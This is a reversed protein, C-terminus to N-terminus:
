DGNMFKTLEEMFSKRKSQSVPLSTGNVNVTYGKVSQVFRLNVLYGNNCRAFGYKALMNEIASMKGTATLEENGVHYYLTHNIIEIYSIEKINVAVTEDQKRVYIKPTDRNLGISKKARDLVQCLHNFVVPKVIFDFADVSYGKVAYQAMNTVFIIIVEGDRKRLREAAKMGNMGPLEIDLLVVDYGFKYKELFSVAEPYYECAIDTDNIKAYRSLMSMIENAVEKEDEVIAINM